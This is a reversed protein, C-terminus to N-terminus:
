ITSNFFLVSPRTASIRWTRARCKTSPSKRISSRARPLVASDEGPTLLTSKGSGSPGLIVNIDGADLSFSVEKLAQVEQGDLFYSKTAKEVKLIEM